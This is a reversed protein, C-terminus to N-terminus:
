KVEEAFGIGSGGDMRVGFRGISNAELGNVALSGNYIISLNKVAISARNLTFPIDFTRNSNIGVGVSELTLHVVHNGDALGASLPISFSKYAGSGSVSLAEPTAADIARTANLESLCQWQEILGNVSAMDGSLSAGIFRAARCEPIFGTDTIEGVVVGGVKAQVKYTHIAGRTAASDLFEKPTIGTAISEEDRFLDYTVSGGGTYSMAWTVNVADEITGDTANASLEFLCTNEGVVWAGNTCVASATGTAGTSMNILSSTGNNATTQANGSCMNATGWGISAAACRQAWGTVATSWGSTGVSNVARVQFQHDAADAITLQWGSSVTGAAVWDADGAKRHQLEYSLAGPTAGWTVKIAGDLTGQTASVAVPASLNATCTTASLEWSGTLGNCVATAGGSGGSTTNTLTRSTGQIGAAASAACYNSPGWNLTQTTCGKAINGTETGSWTGEGAVNKGVVQFEFVSEDATTLQWGSTVNTVTTWSPAGQKRHRIDYSTANAVAGWTVTIKGVVTGDTAAVSAPASLSASCTPNSVEWVASNCVATASGIAGAASNSIVISQGNLTTQAVASCYNGPGWSLPAATCEPRDDGFLITTASTVGFTRASYMTGCEPYVGSYAQGGSPNYILVADFVATRTITQGPPLSGTYIVSAGYKMEYNTSLTQSQNQITVAFQAFALSPALYALALCVLVRCVKLLHKM